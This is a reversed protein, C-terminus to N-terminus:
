PEAGEDKVAAVFEDGARSPMPPWGSDAGDIALKGLLQKLIRVENDDIPALCQAESSKLLAVIEIMARRGDHTLWARSSADGPTDDLKIFGRSKLDELTDRGVEDGRARGIRYIDELARGDQHGLLTLVAYDAGSWGRRKREAVAEERIRYFVRSVLYIFDEPSLSEARRAFALEDQQHSVLRGYRGGHFLLPPTASHQFGIIEGVFIIHDGGEYQYTTKCEFRASCQEILPIGDHGREVAVTDFPNASSSAFAGSLSDQDASLIHVAFYAAQKFSEFSSSTKSLSWLILPPDLSVSSFSNATRGLDSGNLTKTTVITVGTAFAGLANRLVRKEDNM